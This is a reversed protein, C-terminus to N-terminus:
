SKNKKFVNAIALVGPFLVACHGLRDMRGALKKYAIYNGSLYSYCIVLLSNQHSWHNSEKGEKRKYLRRGTVAQCFKGLYYWCSYVSNCRYRSHIFGSLVFFGNLDFQLISGTFRVGSFFCGLPHFSSETNCSGKEKHYVKGLFITYSHAFM